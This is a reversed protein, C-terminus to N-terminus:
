KVQSLGNAGTVQTAVDSYDDAETLFTTTNKRHFSHTDSEEQSEEHYSELKSKSNIYKDFHSIQGSSKIVPKLKGNKDKAMVIKSVTPKSQQTKAQDQSIQSLQQLTKSSLNFFNINKKERNFYPNAKVARGNYTLNKAISHACERDGDHVGNKQMHLKM